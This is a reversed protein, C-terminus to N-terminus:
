VNQSTNLRALGYSVEGFLVALAGVGLGDSAVVVSRAVVVFWGPAELDLWGSAEVTMSSKRGRTLSGTVKSDLAEKIQEARPKSEAAVLSMMLVTWSFTDDPELGSYAEKTRM